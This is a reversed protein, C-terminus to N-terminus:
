MFSKPDTDYGLFIKEKFTERLIAREQEDFANPYMRLEKLNSLTLLERPIEKIKNGGLDLNEIHELALIEEPIKKFKNGSLVLTKLNQMEKISAPLTELENDNLNLWTVSSPLAPIQKLRNHHLAIFILTTLSSLDPLSILQNYALNLHEIGTLRVIEQPLQVINNNSLDLHKLQKLKQIDPSITTIRNESLNLKQLESLEFVVTPVTTICEKQLEIEELATLEKIAEPISGWGIKGGRLFTTNIAYSAGYLTIKGSALTTFDKFVPAKEIEREITLYCEEGEQETYFLSYAVDHWYNSVMLYNKLKLISKFSEDELLTIAAIETIGIFLQQFVELEGRLEEQWDPIGKFIAEVLVEGDIEYAGMDPALWEEYTDGSDLYLWVYDFSHDDWCFAFTGIPEDISITAYSKALVAKFSTLTKDIDLVELRAIIEPHEKIWQNPSEQLRNICAAKYTNLQTVNQNM